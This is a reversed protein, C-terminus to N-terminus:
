PQWRSRLTEMVLAWAQPGTVPHRGAHVGKGPHAGNPVEPRWQVRGVPNDFGHHSDPYVHVRAKVKQAWELCPGPPTWDDLEALLMLLPVQPQYNAKLAQACGPYFAIAMSPQISRSRGADTAELVTSGGHSWGLLAIRKPDVWPQEALWALVGDVDDSRHSSRISREALKQACLGPVGRSGFSDPFLISYGQAVMWQAMGDHRASLQGQRPGTTAYLGGCGHLAVVVPRVQDPPLGVPHMAVTKLATGDASRLMLEAQTQGLVLSPGWLLGVVWLRLSLWFDKTTQM